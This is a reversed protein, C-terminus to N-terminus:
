WSFDVRRDKVWGSEDTGTAEIEGKAVMKLKGGDVGTRTLRDKVSAARKDSLALNYEETGRPDTHGTLTVSRSGGKKICEANREIAGNAETTLVSENFDFYVAELKCPGPTEPADPLKAAARKCRGNSCKGGEGCESDSSCPKCAGDICSQDPPCDGDASCSKKAAECRGKNCIQGPKCDGDNRCQQCMGNVCYENKEKCDKDSDCKPYTPGCGGLVVAVMLALLCTTTSRRM